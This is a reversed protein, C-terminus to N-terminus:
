RDAGDRLAFRVTYDGITKGHTVGVENDTRYHIGGYLRSIAAEDRNKEFDAQGGPFLYILVEAAAGSFTSHGSTYSPFNPLGIATKVDSSLQAARPSLYAYKADWCGVAADHLSMNILAFARAARVESWNAATIYPEALFDWHGPPTPSSAGDAWKIAIARQDRSLHNVIDNVEALDRAM